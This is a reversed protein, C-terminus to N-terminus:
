DFEMKGQRPPFLYQELAEVVIKQYADAKPNSGSASKVENWDQQALWM